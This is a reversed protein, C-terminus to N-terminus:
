NVSICSPFFPFFPTLFDFAPFMFLAPFKFLTCSIAIECWHSIKASHHLIKASHHSIRQKEEKEAEAGEKRRIKIHLTSNSEFEENKSRSSLRPM